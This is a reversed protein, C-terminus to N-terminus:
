CEKLKCSLFINCRYTYISINLTLILKINQFKNSENFFNQECLDYVEKFKKLM